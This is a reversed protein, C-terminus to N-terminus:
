YICAGAISNNNGSTEDVDDGYDAKVRWVCGPEILCGKPLYATFQYTQGPSLGPTAYGAGGSYFDSISEPPARVPLSPGNTRSRSSWATAARRVSPSSSQSSTPPM